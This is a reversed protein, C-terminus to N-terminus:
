ARVGTGRCSSSIAARALAWCAALCFHKTTVEVEAPRPRTDEDEGTEVRLVTRVVPSRGLWSSRWGM